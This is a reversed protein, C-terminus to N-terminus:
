AWTEMVPLKGDSDGLLLEGTNQPEHVGRGEDEEFGAAFIVKFGQVINQGM